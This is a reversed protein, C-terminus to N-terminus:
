LLYHQTFHQVLTWEIACCELITCHNLEVMCWLCFMFDNALENSTTCSLAADKSHVCNETAARPCDILRSETGTCRVDDLLVPVTGQGYFARSYAIADTLLFFVNLLLLIFSM